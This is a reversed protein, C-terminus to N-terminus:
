ATQLLEPSISGISKQIRIGDDSVAGNDVKSDRSRRPLPKIRFAKPIGPRAKAQKKVGPQEESHDRHLSSRTMHQRQPGPKSSTKKAARKTMKRSTAIETSCLGTNTARSGVASMLTDTGPQNSPPEISITQPELLRTDINTMVPRSDAIHAASLNNRYHFM